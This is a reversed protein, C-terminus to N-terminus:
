KKKKWASLIANLESESFEITNDTDWQMDPETTETKCSKSFDWLTFACYVPLQTYPLRFSHAPGYAKTFQSTNRGILIGLKNQRIIRCFFDGASNTLTGQLVFIKGGFLKENDKPLSVTERHNPTHKKVLLSDRTTRDYDFFLTDHQFFEFAHYLLILDGGINKSVDIFLNEIKLRKLSDALNNLKKDMIDAIFLDDFKWLKIYDSFSDLKNEAMTNYAISQKTFSNIYLIATSSEPYIKYQIPAKHAGILSDLFSYSESEECRLGEIDEKKILNELKYEVSYPSHIDFYSNIYYSFYREIHYDLWAKPYHPFLEIINSVLTAVEVENISKLAVEKNDIRTFVEGNKFVIDPFVLEGSDKLRQFVNEEQLGPNVIQTHCDLSSNITCMLKHFEDKTLPTNLQSYIQAIKRDFAEIGVNYYPNIHMREVVSFFTGADARVQKPPYKFQSETADFDSYLNTVQIYEVKDTLKKVAIGHKELVAIRDDIEDPRKLKEAINVEYFQKEINFPVEVSIGILESVCYAITKGDMRMKIFLSDSPWGVEYNQAEPKEKLVKVGNGEKINMIYVTTDKEIKRTKFEFDKNLRAVLSDYSEQNHVASFSLSCRFRDSNIYNLNEPFEFRNEPLGRYAFQYLALIKQSTPYHHVISDTSGCPVFWLESSPEGHSGETWKLGFVFSSDCDNQQAHSEAAFAVIVALLLIQRM